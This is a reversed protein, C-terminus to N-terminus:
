FLQIEGLQVMIQRVQNLNMNRFIKKALNQLSLVQNQIRKKDEDYTLFNSILSEYHNIQNFAKKSSWKVKSGVRSIVRDLHRLTRDGPWLRPGPDAPHYALWIVHDGMGESKQGIDQKLRGLEIRKQEFDFNSFHLINTIEM